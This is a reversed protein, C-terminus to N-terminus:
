NNIKLEDIVLDDWEALCKDINKEDESKFPHKIKSVPRSRQKPFRAEEKVLESSKEQMWTQKSQM